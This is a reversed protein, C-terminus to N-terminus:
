KILLKERWAMRVDPRKMRGLSTLLQSPIWWTAIWTMAVWVRRKKTQRVAEVGQLKQDASLYASKIEAAESQYPSTEQVRTGFMHSSPAYLTSANDDHNEAERKEEGPMGAANAFLPLAATSEAMDLTLQSDSRGHQRFYISPALGNEADNVQKLKERSLKIESEESARLLNELYYFSDHGLFVKFKGVAMEKDTWGLDQRVGRIKDPWIASSYKSSADALEELKIYRDWFEKHTLTVSWETQL